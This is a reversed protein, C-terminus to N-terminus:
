AAGRLTPELQRWQQALARVQELDLPRHAWALQLWLPMLAALFRASPVQRLTPPLQRLVENETASTAVPLGTEQVLRTLALRYMLSVATRSDGRALADDLAQETPSLVAAAAHRGRVQPASRQSRPRRRLSGPWWRRGYWLLVGILAAALVWLLIRLGRTVSSYLDSASWDPLLILPERQEVTPATDESGWERLQLSSDQRVPNLAESAAVDQASRKWEEAVAPQPLLASAGTLGILAALLLALPTHARQRRQRIRELGPQLDWGELWTRKNLYLAFGACVYLPECLTIALAATVLTAPTSGDVGLAAQWPLGPILTTAALGLSYFTLVETAMMVLTILTGEGGGPPSRLMRVRESLTRPNHQELQLVPLMVSRQPSLRWITLQKLLSPRGYRGFQQLLAKAGLRDGFMGRAICELLPRDWLPKLWWMLLVFWLGYQPWLLAAILLPTLLAAQILLLPLWWHRYLRTGLDIAQWTSRPAIRALPQRDSM